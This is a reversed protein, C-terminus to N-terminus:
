FQGWNRMMVQSKVGASDSKTGWHAVFRAWRYKQPTLDKFAPLSDVVVVSDVPTWYISDNSMQLVFTVAGSDAVGVTAIPRGKVGITVDEWFKADYTISTDFDQRSSASGIWFTTTGTSDDVVYGTYTTIGGALGLGCMALLLGIIAGTRFQM